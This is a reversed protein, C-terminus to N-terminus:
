RAVGRVAGVVERVAGIVAAPQTLQIYHSSKPVLMNRGRTSWSAQEDHLAMTAAHLMRGHEPKLGMMRLDSPPVEDGATLVILPRHGFSRLEGAHVLTATVGEVEGALARLSTPMLGTMRDNDGSWLAPSAGAPVLRLLGTWSLAAGIKFM